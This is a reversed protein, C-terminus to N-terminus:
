SSNELTIVDNIHKSLWSWKRMVLGWPRPFPCEHCIFSVKPDLEPGVAEDSNFDQAIDEPFTLCGNEMKAMELEEDEEKEEWLDDVM